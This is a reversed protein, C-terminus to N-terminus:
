VFRALFQLMNKELVMTCLLWKKVSDFSLEVKQDIVDKKNSLVYKVFADIFNHSLLIGRIIDEQLVKKGYNRGYMILCSKESPHYDWGFSTACDALKSFVEKPTMNIDM